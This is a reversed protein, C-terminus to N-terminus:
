AVPEFEWLSPQGGGADPIPFYSHHTAPDVAVTHAGSALHASGQEALRGNEDDFV